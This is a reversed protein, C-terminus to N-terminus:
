HCTLFFTCEAEFSASRVFEISLLVGYVTWVHTPVYRCLLPAGLTRLYLGLGKEAATM